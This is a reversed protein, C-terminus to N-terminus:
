NYHKEYNEKVYEIAKLKDKINGLLQQEFVDNIIKGILKSPKFGMKLLDSGRILPKRHMLDELYRILKDKNKTLPYLALVGELPMQSLAKYVDLDSANPNAM